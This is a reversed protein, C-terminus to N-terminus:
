HLSATVIRGAELKELFESNLCDQLKESSLHFNINLYHCEEAVQKLGEMMFHYHRQTMEMFKPPVCVLVHLYGEAELAM